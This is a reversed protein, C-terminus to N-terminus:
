LNEGEKPDRMTLRNCLFAEDYTVEIVFKDGGFTQECTDALARLSEATQVTGGIEAFPWRTTSVYRDAM